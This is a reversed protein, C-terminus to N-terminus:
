GITAPVSGSIVWLPSQPEISEDEVQAYFKAGLAREPGKADTSSMVAILAPMDAVSLSQFLLHTRLNFTRYFARGGLNIFSMHHRRQERGPGLVENLEDYTVYGRAKASKIMKKVASDSLDLLPGDRDAADANPAATEKAKQQM